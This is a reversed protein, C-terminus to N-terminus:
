AANTQRVANILMYASGITNIAHEVISEAKESENLAEKVAAILEAREEVTLDKIEEVIEKATKTVEGVQMAEDLFGFLDRPQVGDKFADKGENFFAVALLVASKLKEIGM